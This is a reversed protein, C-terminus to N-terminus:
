DRQASSDGYGGESFQRVAVHILRLMRRAYQERSEGEQRAPFRTVTDLIIQEPVVSVNYTHGSLLAQERLIPLGQEQNGVVRALRAVREDSVLSSSEPVTNLPVYFVDGNTDPPYGVLARAENRMSFGSQVERTARESMENIRKQVALVNDFNGRIRMTPRGLRRRFYRTYASDRKQIMPETNEEFMAIRAQDYNSQHHFCGGAILTHESTELMVTEQYGADEIAAVRVEKSATVTTMAWLKTAQALLRQPRIEGLFRMMNARGMIRIIHVSSGKQPTPGSFQYGKLRLLEVVKNMVDGPKQSFSIIGGKGRHVSGEGDFLGALWGAEKSTDKEWTDSFKIVPTGIRLSSTKRWHQAVGVQGVLWPHDDTCTVSSGDNLTVKYCHLEKRNAHTVLTPTMRRGHKVVLNEECGVLEDGIALEGVPKWHLDSTLVPTAPVLCYTMHEIGIKAGVVVPPVNMAMLIRAETSMRLEDLGVERSGAALGLREIRGRTGDFVGIDWANEVGGQRRWERKLQEKQERSVTVDTIIVHPPVAGRKFFEKIYLTIKLDAEISDLAAAIPGIGWQYQEPDPAYTRHIVRSPDFPIADKSIANFIAKNPGGHQKTPDYWYKTVFGTREDIDVFVNRTPLVQLEGIPEGRRPQHEVIIANGTVILQTDQSERFQIADERDNPNALRELLPDTPPQRQWNAFEPNYDEVMFPIAAASWVTESTARFVVENESYYKWFRNLNRQASTAYGFWGGVWQSVSLQYAQARQRLINPVLKM